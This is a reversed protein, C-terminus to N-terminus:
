FPAPIGPKGDMRFETTRKIKRENHQLIATVTVAITNGAQKRFTTLTVTGKAEPPLILAADLSIEGERPSDARHACAWALGSDLMQRVMITERERMGLRALQAASVGVVALLGGTLTIYALVLLLVVGRRRASRSGLAVAPRFAGSTIRPRSTSSTM